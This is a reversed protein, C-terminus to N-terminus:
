LPFRTLANNLDLLQRELHHRLSNSNRRRGRSRHLGQQVRLLHQEALRRLRRSLPGPYRLHVEGQPRRGMALGVSLFLKLRRSRVRSGHLQDALPLVGRVRRRRLWFRQRQVELGQRELSFYPGLGRCSLPQGFLVGGLENRRCTQLAPHGVPQRELARAGGAWCRLLEEQDHMVGRLLRSGAVKQLSWRRGNWREALAHERGSKSKLKYFGVAECSTSRPCAIDLLESSYVGRRPAPVQEVSWQTGNWRVAYPRARYLSSFSSTGAAGIAMCRVSTACSVANLFGKGSPPSPVQQESWSSGDWRGAVPGGPGSGVVTCETMSRCSLGYLQDYALGSRAAGALARADAASVVGFIAAVLCLLVARMVLGSSCCWFRM